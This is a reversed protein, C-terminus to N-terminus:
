GRYRFGLANVVASVALALALLVAGLQLAADWNGLMTEHAVATTLVRTKYRIDGGLM